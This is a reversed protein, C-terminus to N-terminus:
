SDEYDRLQMWLVIVELGEASFGWVRFSVGFGRFRSRKKFM